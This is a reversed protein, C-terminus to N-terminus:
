LSCPKVGDRGIHARDVILAHHLHCQHLIDLTFVEIRYLNGKGILLEDFLIAECLVRERLLHALLAGGDGIIESQEFERSLHLHRQFLAFDVLTM